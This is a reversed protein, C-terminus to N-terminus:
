DDHAMAKATEVLMGTVRVRNKYVASATVGFKSAIAEASERGYEFNMFMQWLRPGVKRSVLEMARDLTMLRSVILGEIEDSMRDLELLREASQRGYVEGIESEAKRSRFHDMVANRIISSLYGRFTAEIRTKRNTFVELLRLRVVAEVDERDSEDLGWGHCRVRIMPDYIALFQRWADENSFDRIKELLEYNTSGM